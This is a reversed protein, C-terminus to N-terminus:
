ANNQYNNIFEIIDQMGPFQAKLDDYNITNSIEPVSLLFKAQTFKPLRRMYLLSLVVYLFGDEVPDFQVTKILSKVTDFEEQQIAEEIDEKCPTVGLELFRSGVGFFWAFKMTGQKPIAGNDLLWDIDEKSFPMLGWSWTGRNKIYYDDFYEFYVENLIYSLYETSREKFLKKAILLGIKPNHINKLEEFTLNSVRPDDLLLEAIEKSECVKLAQTPEFKKSFFLKKFLETYNYEVSAVFIEDNNSDYKKMMKEIIDEDIKLSMALKVLNNTPVVRKDDLLIQIIEPSKTHIAANLASNDDINPNLYNLLTKVLDTREEEIAKILFQNTNSNESGSLLAELENLIGTNTM